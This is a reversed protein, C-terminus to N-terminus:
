AMQKQLTHIQSLNLGTNEAVVEPEFGNRLLNKAVGNVGERLGRKKGLNEFYEQISKPMNNSM